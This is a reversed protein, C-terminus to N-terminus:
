RRARRPQCQLLAVDILSVSSLRPLIDGFASSVREELLGQLYELVPPYHYVVAGSITRLTDLRGDQIRLTEAAQFFALVKLIDEFDVLQQEAVVTIHRGYKGYGQYTALYHTIEWWTLLGFPVKVQVKARSSSILYFFSSTSCLSCLAQQPLFDLVTQWLEVPLRRSM